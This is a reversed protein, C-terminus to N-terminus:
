LLKSSTSAAIANILSKESGLTATMLCLLAQPNADSELRSVAQSFANAPSGTEANPPIKTALRSIVKSTASAM